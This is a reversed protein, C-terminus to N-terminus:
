VITKCLLSFDLEVILYGLRSISIEIPRCRELGAQECACILVFYVWYAVKSECEVLLDFAVLVTSKILTYTIKTFYLM